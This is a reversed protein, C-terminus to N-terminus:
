RGRAVGCVDAREDLDDEFDPLPLVWRYPSATDSEEDERPDKESGGANADTALHQALRRLSGLINVFAPVHRRTAENTFM